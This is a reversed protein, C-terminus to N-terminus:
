GMDEVPKLLPTLTLFSMKMIEFLVQLWAEAIEFLNTRLFNTRSFSFVDLSPWNSTWIDLIVMQKLFHPLLRKRSYLVSYLFMWELCPPEVSKFASHSDRWCLPKYRRPVELYVWLWKQWHEPFTFVDLNLEWYIRLCEVSLTTEGFLSCLSPDSYVPLHAYYYWILVIYTFKIHRFVMCSLIFHFLFQSENTSCVSNCPSIIFFFFAWLYYKWKMFLLYKNTLILLVLNYIVYCNGIYLEMLILVTLRDRGTTNM